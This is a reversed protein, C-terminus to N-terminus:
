CSRGGVLREMVAMQPASLLALEALSVVARWVVPGCIRCHITWAGDRREMAAALHPTDCDPCYVVASGRRM